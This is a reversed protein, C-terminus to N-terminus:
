RSCYHSRSGVFSNINIWGRNSAQSMTATRPAKGWGWNGSGWASRSSVGTAASVSSGNVGWHLHSNSGQNAVTAVPDGHAVTRNANLTSRVHGLVHEYGTRTERIVIYAQEASVSNAANNTIIRGAVPSYVRTGSDAPLDIGLHQRDQSVPYVPDFYVCGVRIRTLPWEWGTQPTMAAVAASFAMGAGLASVALARLPHAFTRKFM